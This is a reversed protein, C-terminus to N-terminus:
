FVRGEIREILRDLDQSTYYELVVKGGEGRARPKVRVRTGLHRALRDQLDVLPAPLEGAVARKRRGQVRLRVEDETQRVSLADGVVRAFVGLMAEEGQEALGLLARGHGMSITGHALADLIPEPLGLLRMTNSITSRDRGVRRSLEEQTYGFEEILDRYAEAEDIPGLDERMLNEILAIELSEARDCRRIIAPVTRLGAKGAARFRREGAIIEYGGDVPRLLIPQVVGQERVSATLEAMPEAAFTRRPQLPNPKVEEIPIQVVAASALAARPSDSDTRAEPILSALGRGLTSRKQM